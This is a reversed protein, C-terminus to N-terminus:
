KLQLGSRHCLDNLDMWDSHVSLGPTRIDLKGNEKIKFCLFQADNEEAPPPIKRRQLHTLLSQRAAQRMTTDDSNLM